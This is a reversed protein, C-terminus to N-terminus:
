GCKVHLRQPLVKQIVPQVTGSTFSKFCPNTIWLCCTLISPSQGAHEYYFIIILDNLFNTRTIAAVANRSLEAFTKRYRCRASCSCSSPPCSWLCQGMQWCAAIFLFSATIGDTETLKSSGCIKTVSIKAVSCIMFFKLKRM